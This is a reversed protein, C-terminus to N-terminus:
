ASDTRRIAAGSVCAAKIDLSIAGFGDAEIQRANGFRRRPKEIEVRLERLPMRVNWPRLNACDAVDESM